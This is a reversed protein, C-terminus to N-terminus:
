LGRQQQQQELILEFVTSATDANFWLLKTNTVQLTFSDNDGMEIRSRSNATNPGSSGVYGTPAGSHRRQRVTVAYGDPVSLDPGQVPTNATAVTVTIVSWGQNNRRFLVQNSHVALLAQLINQLHGNMQELLDAEPAVGVITVPSPVPTAQVPQLEGREPVM